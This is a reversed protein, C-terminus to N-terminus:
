WYVISDVNANNLCKIEVKHKGQTLRQSIFSAGVGDNEKLDVSSAKKGDIYVEVNGNKNSSLLGFRNGTFEFEATAGSKGCYAHGFSYNGYEANWNGYMTVQNDDLSIQKGGIIEFVRAMEAECIIIYTASSKTITLRYYRFTTEDFDAVVSYNSVTLDEYEGVTFWDENNLSTELRFSVPCHYDWRSQTYLTLRNAKRESKLDIKLVLPKEASAQYNTHIYTDKNGDLLNALADREANWPSYNEAEIIEGTGGYYVNDKYDYVSEKEYYYDREFKDASVYSNRYANTKSITANGDLDVKGLGVGIFANKGGKQECLMVAKFYLWSGEALNYDCYTGDTLPFDPSGNANTTYEAALTYIEGDTSAYLACNHRGRLAIRYKGAEKVYYKGKIEIVHLGDAQELWVEASCDQVVRGNSFTNDNDGSVVETHNAYGAEYAEKASTYMKDATYTYTTREILTKNFEHSQEFEFVLEVDEVTFAGDDKTIELKVYIKGSSKDSGPIFKYKTDSVKKIEGSNPTSVNAVRYSFGDPLVISGSQYTDGDVTYRGLDIEFEENAPIRYPRATESYSKVGGQTYSRGTQYISAVPVFMPYGKAATEQLVSDSVELGILDKYYYTMDYGSADTTAKLWNDVSGSGASKIASLMVDQGFSHYYNAYVSLGKQGNSYRNETIDRLAWSPNTYKNWDSLGENVNGLQRNASVNTYIGYAVLNLANNTVEIGDGLGWYGNSNIQYNHNYEHINGWSGSELFSDYDLASSVWGSPSTVSNRLPWACAAGAFTFPDYCFVTGQNSVQTSVASIKDWLVAANYLDDYTFDKVYQLSCSHLVGTDWVELDFYPVKSQSSKAFEEPSTYGLIFHRYPLGGTITVTFTETENRIYLPGGYYSGVYATYTDTSSDYKALTQNIEYSSLNNPMRNYDRGYPINNSQGNYLAQGVHVTLGNTARMDEGSIEIKVVEGAPVYLGTIGYGKTYCRPSYTITKIVAQEDDPVDAYFMNKATTHKYLKRHNGSADLAADDNLYLYGNEDIKNFSGGATYDDNSAKSLGTPTLYYAEEYIALRQEETIGTLTTGYVPYVSLGEDKTEPITRTTTGLIKAYYGVKSTTGYANTYVEGKDNGKGDTLNCACLCAAALATATLGLALIKPLRRLKHKQGDNVHKKTFM